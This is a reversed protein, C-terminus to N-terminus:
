HSKAWREWGRLMSAFLHGFIGKLLQSQHLDPHDFSGDMARQWAAFYVHRLFREKEFMVELYHQELLSAADGTTGLRKLATCIDCFGTMHRNLIKVHPFFRTWVRTFQSRSLHGTTDSSNTIYDLYRKYTTTRNSAQTLFVRDQRGTRRRAPDPLGEVNVVSAIFEKAIEAKATITRKGKGLSGAEQASMAPAIEGNKFSARASELTRSSVFHSTLELFARDCLSVGHIHVRLRSTQSSEILM